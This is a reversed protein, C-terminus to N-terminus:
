AGEAPLESRIRMSLIRFPAVPMLTISVQCAGFEGRMRWSGRLMGDPVIAGELELRGHAERLEDLRHRWDERPLDRFFNDAFLSDALGDDWGGLLRMVDRAAAELRSSVPVRYPPLQATEILMDVADGCAEHVRAYTVNSLVVVGVGMAPVWRMHSGFGPLGGGHGVSLYRGNHLTSLGYGYGRVQHRPPEDPTALPPVSTWARQMERLSSRRLIGDDPDDRPPWASLFLSVWTALDRVTSFLGGFVAADSGSALLPEEIFQEHRWAYGCAIRAAPLADANWATSAMGLPVLIHSGIYDLAPMGSVNSIIRGLAMYGLNSYEYTTGPPWTFDIPGSWIEDMQAVNRYLERDAWPDDTVWGANMTLLQRVTIPPTDRPPSQLSALAAVYDAAPADLMLKGADRLQLIALAAFSKSMSAIRYITDADPEAPNSGDPSVTGFAGQFILEGDAVVGFAVGPTVNEVARRFITEIDPCADLLRGRQDSKGIAM